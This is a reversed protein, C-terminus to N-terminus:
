DILLGRSEVRFILLGNKGFVENPLFEVYNDYPNSNMEMVINELSTTFPM